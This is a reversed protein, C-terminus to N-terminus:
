RDKQPAENLGNVDMIVSTLKQFHQIAIGNIEEDTSDPVAEKLTIRIIEKMANARKNEHELDMILDINKVTLPKFDFEEGLLEIKKPKALLKTLRSM